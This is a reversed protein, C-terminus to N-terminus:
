TINIAVASSDFWVAAGFSTYAVYRVVLGDNQVELMKPQQNFGLAYADKIFMPMYYTGGDSSVLGTEEINAGYTTVLQGSVAAGQNGRIQYERLASIQLAQALKDPHIVLNYPTRGIKFKGKANKALKALAAQWVAETFSAGTETLTNAEVLQLITYDIKEGLTAMLQKRWGAIAEGDDIIQELTDPNLEIGSYFSAPSVTVEVETNTNYTLGDAVTDAAGTGMAQATAAKLKRLHLKKGIRQVGNPKAVLPAVVAEETPDLGFQSDWTDRLINAAETGVRIATHAM